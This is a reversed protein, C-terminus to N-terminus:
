EPKKKIRHARLGESSSRPQARQMGIRFASESLWKLLERTERVFLDFCSFNTLVVRCLDVRNRIIEDSLKPLARVV